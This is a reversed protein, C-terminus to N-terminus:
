TRRIIIKYTGEKLRIEDLHRIFSSKFGHHFFGGCSVSFSFDTNPYDETFVCLVKFRKLSCVRILNQAFEDDRRVVYAVKNNHLPVIKRDWWPDTQKYGKRKYIGGIVLPIATRM